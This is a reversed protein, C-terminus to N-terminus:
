PEPLNPTPRPLFALLIEERTDFREANRVINNAQGIKAWADAILAAGEERAQALQALASDREREAAVWHEDATQLKGKLEVVEARLAELDVHQQLRDRVFQAQVVDDTLVVIPGAPHGAILQCVVIVLPEPDPMPM